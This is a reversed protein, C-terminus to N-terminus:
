DIIEVTKTELDVIVDDIRKNEYTIRIHESNKERRTITAKSLMDKVDEMSYEEGLWDTILEMEESTIGKARITNLKEEILEVKNIINSDM